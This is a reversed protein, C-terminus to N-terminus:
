VYPRKQCVHMKQPRPLPFPKQAIPSVDPWPLSVCRRPCPPLPLPLSTPGRVRCLSLHFPSVIHSLYMEASAASYSTSLSVYPCYSLCLLSMSGRVHVSPSTSHFHYLIDKKKSLSMCGRPRPLPLPLSHRLASPRWIRGAAWVTVM